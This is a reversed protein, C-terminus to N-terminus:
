ERVRAHNVAVRWVVERLDLRFKRADVLHAGFLARHIGARLVCDGCVSGCSESVVQNWGTAIVRGARVAAVIVGRIEVSVLLGGEPTASNFARAHNVGVRGVPAGRGDELPM